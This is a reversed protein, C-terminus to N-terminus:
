FKISVEKFAYQLDGDELNEQNLNYDLIFQSQKFYDLIKIIEQKADLLKQIMNTSSSDINSGGSDHLFSNKLNNQLYQFIKTGINKRILVRSESSTAVKAAENYATYLYLDLFYQDNIKENKIPLFSKTKLLNNQLNNEVAVKFSDKSMGISSALESTIIEAINQAFNLDITRPTPYVVNNTKIPKGASMLSKFYIEADMEFSGRAGNSVKPNVTCGIILGAATLFKKTQEAVIDKDRTVHNEFLYRCNQYTTLLSNSQEIMGM